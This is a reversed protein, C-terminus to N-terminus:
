QTITWVRQAVFILRTHPIPNKFKIKYFRNPLEEISHITQSKGKFEVTDRKKLEYTRAIHIMIKIKNIIKIYFVQKNNLTPKQM